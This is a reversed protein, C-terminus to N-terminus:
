QGEPRRKRDRPRRHKEPGKFRTKEDQFINRLKEEQEMMREEQEYIKDVSMKEPRVNFGKSIEKVREQIEPNESFKMLDEDTLSKDSLKKM